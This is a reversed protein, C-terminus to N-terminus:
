EIKTFISTDDFPKFPKLFYVLILGKLTEECLKLIGM